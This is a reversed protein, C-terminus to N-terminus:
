RGSGLKHFEAHSRPERHNEQHGGSRPVVPRGGVPKGADAAVYERAVKKPIGLISRGHAAAEMARHQKASVSPM